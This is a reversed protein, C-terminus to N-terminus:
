VVRRVSRRSFFGILLLVTLALGLLVVSVAAAGVANDSEVQNFIFM